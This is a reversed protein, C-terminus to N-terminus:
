GGLAQRVYQILKDIPALQAAARLVFAELSNFEGSNQGDDIAKLLGAKAADDIRQKSFGHQKSFADLRSQSAFALTLEERSVGLQCAAGGLASLAVQEAIQTAGSVTPWHRPACPDPSAAPKYSTGGALAYGGVLAASVVAAVLIWAYERRV